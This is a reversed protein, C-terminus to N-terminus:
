AVGDSSFVAAGLKMQKLRSVHEAFRSVAELDNARVQYASGTHVGSSVLVERFSSVIGQSLNRFSIVLPTLRESGESAELRQVAEFVILELASMHSRIEGLRVAIEESPKLMHAKLCAILMELQAEQAGLVPGMMLTDEVERFPVALDEYASDPRGLLNAEPVVCNDLVIGGHPCPRLFGFDVPGALKLGPTDRPVLFASFRKKAGMDGSVALVIYAGAVPGNTLSAKEGKLCYGGEVRQASTALHRPHGGVKPESIAICVTVRGAAIDPLYTKQQDRTGFDNIFFRGTIQHMLWSLVIGLCGGSRSLARGALAIAPYGQGQGGFERPLSIGLLGSRGMEEWLDVPFAAASALGPRVAIHESAFRAAQGAIRTLEGNYGCAGPM